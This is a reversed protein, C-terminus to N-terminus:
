NQGHEHYIIEGMEEDSIVLINMLSGLEWVSFNNKGSEKMCYATPTIGLTEAVSAQSLKMDVRTEKISQGIKIKLEEKTM